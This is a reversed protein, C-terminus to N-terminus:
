GADAFDDVVMIVQTLRLINGAIQWDVNDRLTSNSQTNTICVDDMDIASQALRLRLGGGPVSVVM